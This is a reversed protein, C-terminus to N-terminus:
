LPVATGGARQERTGIPCRALRRRGAADFGSSFVIAFPILSM